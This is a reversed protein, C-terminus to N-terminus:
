DVLQFDIKYFQLKINQTMKLAYELRDDKDKCIILGSVDQGEDCLNEKVWGMYRLVQGVVKDSEQGKKLEIVVYSNTNPDKALIDITGVHTFFQDGTGEENKYLVLKDSFIREFNSVMFEQLYKELAFEQLVEGRPTDEDNTKGELLQEYKNEPIEWLTFIPFVQGAFEIQKEEWRVNLFLPYYDDTLNAVRRKGMEVDYFGGRTVEGVGIIKKRGRRAIIIDGPLIEHYIKWISTRDIPIDKGYVEKYKKKLEDETLNGADGLEKTGFAITGNKLDFEWVADFIKKERSRYPAFVWYRSM